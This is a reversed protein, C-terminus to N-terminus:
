PVEAATFSIEFPGAPAGSSDRLTCIPGDAWCYRVRLPASSYHRGSAPEVCDVCDLCDRCSLVVERGELM